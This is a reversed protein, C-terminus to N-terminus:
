PQRRRRWGLLAVLGALLGVPGTAASVVVVKQDAGTGDANTGEGLFAADNNATGGGLADGSALSGGTAGVADNLSGAATGADVVTSGTGTAPDVVPQPETTTGTQTEQTAGSTTEGGTSAAPASVQVLVTRVADGAASSCTLTFRTDQDIPGVQESGSLPKIGSWGDSAECQDADQANWTLTVMAGPEVTTEDAGFDAQPYPLAVGPGDALKYFFVNETVDNVLIFANKSPIYRFRGYTGNPQPKSPVIANTAAPDMRSWVKSDVDLAYVSAGGNWAIFRDSVPDFVFGAADSDEIETAGTTALVEARPIPDAALDVLLTKPFGGYGTGGLAALKRRNPDIDATMYFKFLENFVGPHDTWPNDLNLPDFELLTGGAAYWIHGTAADFASIMGCGGKSDQIHQWGSEAPQADFDFLWTNGSCGGSGYISGGSTFLRDVNPLYELGDYTHVSSPRGDAYIPDTKSVDEPASPQTLQQWQLTNVDFAYLENGSYDMHGGGFIVLRDRLSDYAGSSWPKMVNPTKGLDAEISSDVVEYWHGPPLVDLVSGGTPMTLRSATSQPSLRDAVDFAQVTYEVTAGPTLGRDIFMTDGTTAILQGDRYLRYGAVGTDDSAPDWSVYTESPSVAIVRPTGPASPAAQGNQPSQSALAAIEAESLVRDFILVEDM